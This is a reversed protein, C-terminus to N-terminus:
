RRTSSSSGVRPLEGRERCSARGIKLPALLLGNALGVVLERWFTRPANSSNLERTALARVTVTLAQTGANGGIASVIPMLVALAFIPLACTQVGTVHFDRIGDEAQFF